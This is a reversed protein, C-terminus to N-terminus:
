KEESLHECTNKVLADDLDRIIFAADLASYANAPTPEDADNLSDTAATLLEGAQEPSLESVAEDVEGRLWEERNYGESKMKQLSAFKEDIATLTSIIEEACEAADSRGSAALKSKVFDDISMGSNEYESMLEKLLIDFKEM